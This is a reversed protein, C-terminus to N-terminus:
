VREMTAKGMQMVIEVIRMYETKKIMKLLFTVVPTSHEILIMQRSVIRLWFMKGRQGSIMQGILIIM